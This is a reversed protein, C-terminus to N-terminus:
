EFRYGYGRIIRRAADSQLFELFARAAPNASGRRLLVADQRVPEYLDAPVDWRSGTARNRPSLVSSLAVFGAEANRTAVMAFAEGVNQGVVVKDQVRDWLGLSTMAERAAGGYPALRPNAIAVHRVRATVLVDAGADRFLAPDASWLTLLGIAYTFRSGPVADGDDGLKAARRQDAALFVDFPAGNRIQAYLKGTSGAAFRVTHGYRREFAPALADAAERFNTAVAITAEGARAGVPLSWALLALLGAAVCVVPWRFRRNM